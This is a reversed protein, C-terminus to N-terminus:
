RMNERDRYSSGQWMIEEPFMNKNFTLCFTHTGNLYRLFHNAHDRHQITCNSMYMSLHNFVATTDPRTCNSSYLLKGVLKTFPFQKTNLPKKHGPKSVVKAAKPTGVYTSSGMGFEEVIESVNQEHSLRLIM